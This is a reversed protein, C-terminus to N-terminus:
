GLHHEQVGFPLTATPSIGASSLGQAPSKRLARLLARLLPSPGKRSRATSNQGLQTAIIADFDFLTRSVLLQRLPPLLVLVLVLLACCRYSLQLRM